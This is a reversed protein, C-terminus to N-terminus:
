RSDDKNQQARVRRIVKEGQDSNAKITLWRGQDRVQLRLTLDSEPLYDEAREPWEVLVLGRGDLYDDVGIYELENPDSLRYLDFHFVQIDGLLYPEVLTFTPSKVAGEHGLGRLIGRCFTTKGAGLEGQLFILCTGDLCAGFRRAFAVTASEDALPVELINATRNM